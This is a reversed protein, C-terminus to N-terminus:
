YRYQCMVNFYVIFRKKSSNSRETYHFRCGEERRKGKGVVGFRDSIEKAVVRGFGGMHVGVKLFIKLPVDGRPIVVEDKDISLVIGHGSLRQRCELVAMTEDMEFQLTHKLEEDLSRDTPEGALSYPVREM